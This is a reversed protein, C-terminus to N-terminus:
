VSVQCLRLCYGWVLFPVSASMLGLGLFACVSLSVSLCVCICVQRYLLGLCASDKLHNPEKWWKVYLQLMTDGTM